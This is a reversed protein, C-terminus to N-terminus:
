YWQQFSFLTKIINFNVQEQKNGPSSASQNALTEAEL